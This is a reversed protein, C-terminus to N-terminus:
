NDFIVKEYELAIKNINFDSIRTLTKQSYYEILDRNKFIHNLTTVLLKEDNVPYLIGYEAYDVNNSLQIEIDSSPSLLERPGSTCDSSVVCCGCCMAEAIVNPFGEANSAFVFISSKSLYKYPNSDFDIFRVRDIIDLKKTIQELYTKQYGKGLIILNINKNELKSMAKLILEHNKRPILSGVTIMTTEKKIIFDIDVLSLEKIKEIDYPNYIVFKQPTNISYNRELDLNAVKSVSIIKDAKNYLYRILNRHVFSSIRKNDYISSPSVRESLITKHKTFFKIFINIYNAVYMFSVIQEFKHRKIISFLNYAMFPTNIIKVIKSDHSKHSLYIINVRKDLEYSIKNEMLILHCEYKEVFNNLLTSVVREAGGGDLSNILFVIRRSQV